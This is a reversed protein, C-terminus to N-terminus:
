IRTRSSGACRSTISATAASRTSSLQPEPPSRRSAGTSSAMASTDLISGTALQIGSREEVRVLRARATDPLAFLRGPVIRNQELGDVQLTSHGATGRRANRELPDRAYGFTGRDAILDVGGISLEISCKDNHAHGGTGGQGNPGASLCLWADGSRLVALGADHLAASGPERAAPLREIRRVGEPGLFWAVEPPCVGTKL